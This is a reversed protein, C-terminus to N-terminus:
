RTSAQSRTTGTTQRRKWAPTRGTGGTSWTRCSITCRGRRDGKPYWTLLMNQLAGRPLLVGSECTARWVDQNVTIFAVDPLEHTEFKKWPARNDIHGASTQNELRYTVNFQGGVHATPRMFLPKGMSFKMEADADEKIRALTEVGYKGARWVVEGVDSERITYGALDEAMRRVKEWLMASGMEDLFCFKIRARQMATLRLREVRASKEPRMGPYEKSVVEAVTQAIKEYVGEPYAGQPPRSSIGLEAKTAGAISVARSSNLMKEFKEAATLGLERRAERALPSIIDDIEARFARYYGLEANRPVFTAESMEDEHVVQVKGDRRFNATKFQNLNDESARNGWLRFSGNVIAQKRLSEAVKDKTERSNDFITAPYPHIDKTTLGFGSRRQCAAERERSPTSGTRM